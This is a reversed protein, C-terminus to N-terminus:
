YAIGFIWSSPRSLRNYSEAKTWILFFVDNIIDEIMDLRGSLRYCFQFLRKYYRHYLQEFASLNGNATRSILEADHLDDASLKVSGRHQTSSHTPKGKISM